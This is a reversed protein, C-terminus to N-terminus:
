LMQFATDRGALRPLSVWIASVGNPDWWEIEHALLTGDELAFRIGAPDSVTAVVSAPIRVLAPFNTLTETGEYGNFDIYAKHAFAGFDIAQATAAAFVTAFIVIASITRKTKSM